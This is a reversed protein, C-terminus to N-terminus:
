RAASPTFTTTFAESDRLAFMWAIYPQTGPTLVRTTGTAPLPLRDFHADELWSPAADPRGAAHLVLHFQGEVSMDFASEIADIRRALPESPDLDLGGEFAITEGGVSPMATGAVWAVHGRTPGTPDAPTVLEVSTREALGATGELMGAFTSGGLADVTLEELWEVRVDEPGEFGGHARAVPLVLAELSASRPAPALVYTPGVVISAETLTVEWGASTTFPMAPAEADVFYALTIVRGPTVGCGAFSAATLALALLAISLTRNM